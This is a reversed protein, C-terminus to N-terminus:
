LNDRMKELEEISLESLQERRKQEIMQNIYDRTARDEATKIHAAKDALKTNVIDSIIALQLELKSVAEDSKNCPLLSAGTITSLEVNLIKYMGDLTSLDLDWLDEVTISGKYNFRLKQKTAEKYISM